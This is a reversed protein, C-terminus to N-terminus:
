RRLTCTHAGATFGPLSVLAYEVMFYAFYESLALRKGCISREYVKTTSLDFMGSDQSRDDVTQKVGSNKMCIQVPHLLSLLLPWVCTSHYHFHDYVPLTITTM